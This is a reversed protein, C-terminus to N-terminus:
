DVRKVPPIKWSGKLLSEKPWYFRLMLMFKGEPAPLWNAERDAGPPHEQIYIDLSGDPNSKLEDRASLTYRGLPNDVFFCDGGYMTLSWFGDAAPAQGPAFHMVYRSNGSYPQKTGDVTSIAAVVDQPRNAGLAIAAVLARQTYDDAYVGTKTTLMWGDQLSWDSNKTAATTWAVIKGFAAAPVAELVQVAGPSLKGIDFPQGPVIGLRAMNKIIRKDDHVPPNEKMLYVLRNFFDAASLGNVQERVTKRMDIGPDVQGPPPSYPKGFSSLPVASCEDQLARVAAYDAPTGSCYIRGLVRVMGTPSKYEKLGSPIKGKWGPGTIVCKQPGTGTTRKGLSGFVTTWGDLMPFFAYRGKMDPLSLVWPEQSVDLWVISYLLDTNPMAVDHNSALSYTRTRAFQGLPARMGELERVNTMVRRTVDMAVLPYGYIYAETAIDFAERATLAATKALAGSQGCALLGAVIASLVYKQFLM